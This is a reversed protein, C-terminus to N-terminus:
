QPYVRKQPIRHNKPIERESPITINEFVSFFEYIDTGLLTLGDEFLQNLSGRADKYKFVSTPLSQGL